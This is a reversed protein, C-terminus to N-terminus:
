IPSDQPATPRGEKQQDAHKTTDCLLLNNRGNEESELQSWPAQYNPIM